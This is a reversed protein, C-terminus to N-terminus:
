LTSAIELSASRSFSLFFLLFFSFFCDWLTFTFLFLVFFQIFRFIFLYFFFYFRFWFSFKLFCCIFAFAFFFFFFLLYFFFTWTPVPSDWFAVSSVCIWSVNLVQPLPFPFFSAAIFPWLKWRIQPSSLPFCLGSLIAFSNTLLKTSPM